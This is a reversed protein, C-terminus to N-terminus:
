GLTEEDQGVRPSEQSDRLDGVAENCKATLQLGREDRSFDLSGSLDLDEAVKKVREGRFDGLLVAPRSYFEVQALLQFTKELRGDM